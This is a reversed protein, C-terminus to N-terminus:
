QAADRIRARRQRASRLNSAREAAASLLSDDSRKTETLFAALAAVTPHRFLELIPVVWGCERLRAQAQIILISNAGIDFINEDVGVREVGLLEAWVAAISKEVDTPTQSRAAVEGQQELPPPLALRDLKGHPTLPLVDIMTFSFPLMYEPISARLFARLEAPKPSMWPHAVVYAALRTEGAQRVPIVAAHQVAPHTELCSVIEGTEIRFGRIKVQQDLRGLYELDGNEGHRALDGSRYLRAGPEGGFPNPVFREATLGPRNLYGLALGAGGVHIEGPVGPPVPELHEDLLYLQLDAIPEGILSAAHDIDGAALPRCTVHVTTETIGYMNFLRPSQDGHRDFWPRLVPPELAEGGFIVYRLAVGRGAEVSEGEAQILLRFASPTQNLV